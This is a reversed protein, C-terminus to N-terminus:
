DFQFRINTEPNFPNPYNQSLNYSLPLSSDLNDEVATTAPWEIDVFDTNHIFNEVFNGTTSNFTTRWTHDVPPADYSGSGNHDAYFDVIYDHDMEIGPISVVFDARLFQTM